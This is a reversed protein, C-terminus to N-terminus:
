PPYIYSIKGFVFAGANMKMKQKFIRFECINLVATVRFNYNQMM